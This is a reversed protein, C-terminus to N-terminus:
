LGSAALAVLVLMQDQVTQMACARMSPLSALFGSSASTADTAEPSLSFRLVLSLQIHNFVEFRGVAQVVNTIEVALM